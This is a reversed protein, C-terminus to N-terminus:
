TRRDTGFIGEGDTCVDGRGQRAVYGRGSKSMTSINLDRVRRAWNPKIKKLSYDRQIFLALFFHLDSHFHM